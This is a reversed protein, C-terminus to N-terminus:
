RSSYYFREMAERLTVSDTLSVSTQPLSELFQRGYHKTVVRTDLILVVGRDTATRILRGFGQRLRIVADPLTYDSFANRGQAEIAAMRAKVVPDTPVRFPLRCVVLLRLADGPADVGEWFSSTAFLVSSGEDRFRGLLRHRDDDGQKLVQIGLAAIAERSRQYVEELAARSTFLILAGGESVGVAGLYLLGLLVPYLFRIDNIPYLLVPVAYLGLLVVIRRVSPVRSWGFVVGAGSTLLTVMLFVPALFSM